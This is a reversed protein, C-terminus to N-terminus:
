LATSITRLRSKMMNKQTRTVRRRGTREQERGEESGVGGKGGMTSERLRCHGDVVVPWHVDLEELALHVAGVVQQEVVEEHHERRKWDDRRRTAARREM